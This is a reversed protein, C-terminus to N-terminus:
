VFTNALLHNGHPLASTPCAEWRLSGNPRLDPDEMDNSELTTPFLLNPSILPRSGIKACSHYFAYGQCTEKPPSCVLIQRQYDVISSSVMSM